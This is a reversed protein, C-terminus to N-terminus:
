RENTWPSRDSSNVKRIRSGALTILIHMTGYKGAFAMTLGLAQVFNKWGSFLGRRSTLRFVASSGLFGVLYGSETKVGKYLPLVDAIKPDSGTQGQLCNLGRQKFGHARSRDEPDGFSQKGRGAALFPVAHWRSQPFKRQFRWVQLGRVIRAAAHAYGCNCRRKKPGAQDAVERGHMGALKRVM